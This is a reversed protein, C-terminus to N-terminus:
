KCFSIENSNMDGCFLSQIYYELILLNLAMTERASECENKIGNDTKKKENERRDNKQKNKKINQEHNECKTNKVSSNIIKKRFNRWSQWSLSM